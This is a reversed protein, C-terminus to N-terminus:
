LRRIKEMLATTSRAHIFPISQVSGGWGMVEGYGVIKELPWDGGKVRDRICM